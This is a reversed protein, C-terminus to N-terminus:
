ISKCIERWNKISFTVSGILADITLFVTGIKQILSLTSFYDISLIALIVSTMNSQVIQLGPIKQTFYQALRCFEFVLIAASLPFSSDKEVCGVMSLYIQTFIFSAGLVQMFVQEENM